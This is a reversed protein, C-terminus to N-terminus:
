LMEEICIGYGRTPDDVFVHTVAGIIKGDQIIPSGSTGQVIGGTMDLLREDTVRIVLGKNTDKAKHDVNTIEINYKEIKGSIESIIQAEGTKIEDTAAVPYYEDEASYKELEEDDLKGYIGLDSNCDLTGIHSRKGFYVVGGLEGPEGSKGKKIQTLEMAYLDGSGTSLLNGSETGDGIGHGLAGFRGDKTYYTITGIGALDDKVWIGMYYKGDAAKVPTIMATKEKGGRLFKIEIKNKDLENKVIGSINSNKGKNEDDREDEYENMIDNVTDSLEEKDDVSRGNVSIIYDGCKVKGKGPTHKTGYEDEVEAINVVLVGETQEYIGTLRGCAYVGTIKNQSTGNGTNSSGANDSNSSNNTNGDTASADNGSAKNNNEGTASESDKETKGDTEDQGVTSVTNESKLGEIYRGAGSNSSGCGIAFAAIIAVGALFNAFHMFFKRMGVGGNPNTHPFKM